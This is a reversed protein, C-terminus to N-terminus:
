KAGGLIIRLEIMEIIGLYASMLALLVSSAIARLMIRDPAKHFAAANLLPLCVLWVLLSFRYIQNLTTFSPYRLYIAIISAWFAAAAVCALGNVVAFRKIPTVPLKVPNM